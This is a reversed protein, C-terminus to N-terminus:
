FRLRKRKTMLCFPITLPLVKAYVECLDHVLAMKIVREIKLGKEKGLVWALLALHFIHEATTEPNKIQHITWGRRQKGKLKGTEILFNLINKM